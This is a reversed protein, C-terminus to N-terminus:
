MHTGTAERVVEVPILVEREEHVGQQLLLLAFEHDVAVEHVEHLRGQGALAGLPERPQAVGLLLRPGLQPLDCTAMGHDELRQAPKEIM